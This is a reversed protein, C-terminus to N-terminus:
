KRSCLTLDLRGPTLDISLHSMQPNIFILSLLFWAAKIEAPKEFQEGTPRLGARTQPEGTESGAGPLSFFKGFTKETTPLM